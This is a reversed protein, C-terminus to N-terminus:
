SGPILSEQLKEFKNRLRADIKGFRTTAQCDGRGLQDDCSVSLGPHRRVFDAELSEILKFDEPHLRVEVPGVDPGIEALLEDVIAVVTERNMEVRALLRRLAEMALDPLAQRVEAVAAAVSQELSRFLGARMENMESRQDLLQQNMQESGEAFGKQYARQEKAGVDEGVSQGDHRLVRAVRLPQLIRIKEPSAM